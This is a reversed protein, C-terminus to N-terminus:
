QFYLSIRACSTSSQPLYKLLTPERRQRFVNLMFLSPNDYVLLGVQLTITPPRLHLLLLEQHPPKGLPHHCLDKWDSGLIQGESDLAALM